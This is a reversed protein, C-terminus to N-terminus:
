YEKRQLVLASACLFAGAFALSALVTMWPMPGGLPYCILSM